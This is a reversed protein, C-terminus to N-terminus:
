RSGRGLLVVPITKLLIRLDFGLSWEDVYRLDLLMWEEFDINSRGSVQWLGTIGPRMSLRRQQWGRIQEQEILPLPRPGILSMSGSLVNLLQPLEDISFKRIFHGLRTIRPDASIKFVPGNMENSAELAGRRAEADRIMSRFKLMRFRRGNLGAREQSFFIPRGMTILILLSTVLLLPSIVVLGIAAATIDLAHKIALAAHEKPAVEFSIFPHDHLYAVHPVARAHQVLDISFSARIGLDECHQLAEPVREPQAFPAFFMVQDVANKHLVSPLDSLAGLRKPSAKTGHEDTTAAEGLYGLVNPSLSDAHAARLFRAMRRSPTGILLLQQRGHGQRHQFRVWASLLSRQAFMLVFSSVLFMGVLSRNIVAQTVFLALALGVLGLLHLKVLEVFLASNSWPREFTQHLPLLAILGLWLPLTLYTLVAYM